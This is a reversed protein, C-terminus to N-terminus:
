VKSTVFVYSSDVANIQYDASANYSTLNSRPVFKMFTIPCEETKNKDSAVCITNNLSTAPSCPTYDTPCAFADGGM